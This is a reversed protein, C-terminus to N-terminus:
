LDGGMASAWRKGPESSHQGTERRWNTLVTPAVARAAETGQIPGRRAKASAPGLGDAGASVATARKKLVRLSSCRLVMQKGKSWGRREWTWFLQAITGGVIPSM